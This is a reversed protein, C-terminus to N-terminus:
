PQQPKVPVQQQQPRPGRGAPAAPKASALTTFAKVVSAKWEADPKTLLYRHKGSASPTFTTRGDDLVDIRGPESVSLLENKPDTAYLAALVAQSPADYPMPKWAKYAEVVPHAPAWAFDNAISAGPYPLAAGAERPVVVISGPWDAFLRRAAPVDAKIRPDATSGSFDGAALVLTRVKMAILDRNGALALARVLNSAPGAAVMLAEGDKQGTLANRIVVAVEGTDTLDQVNVGFAPIGEATKVELAKTLMGGGSSQRDRSGAEAYGIPFHYHVPTTNLKGGTVYFRAVVDCYAAATLDPNTVTVGVVKIKSPAGYLVALALAADANVGMDSDFLVGPVAAPRQFLM